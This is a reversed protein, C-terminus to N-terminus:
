HILISSINAYFHMSESIAATGNHKPFMKFYKEASLM